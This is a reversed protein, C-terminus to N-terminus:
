KNITDGVAVAAPQTSSHNAQLSKIYTIVKWREEKSLSYAYSQM